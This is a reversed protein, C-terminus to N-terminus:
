KKDLNAIYETPSVGYYSKFMTSFHTQTTFGVAYAIQTVNMRKEELLKVAQQMRINMVFKGASLGTLEKLKRHLHTRSIGLTETLDEISFDSNSINANVAEMVRAMLQEDSSQFQIDEVRGKQEQEGSFKGKVILRNSILNAIMSRLERVYFPKSLYADAGTDLGATRDQLKNRASLLIVPIHSINANTKLAKVFAIGDMEPMVVDSVIVAPMQSIAMRLGEKGNRCTIVRYQPTLSQRIFDLMAEDDDIVLVKSSHSQSAVPEVPAVLQYPADAKQEALEDASMLDDESLHSNGLPLRFAFRSGRADTRNEAKISGKHLEVLIRSYNLGIGMGLTVSTLNNQVRYFREFVKNVDDVDLGIGTDTVSVELYHHLPGSQLDDTGSTLHVTIEGGDPTYKFANSLLNDMVKEISDRDIWALIEDSGHEYSYSISRQQASYMFTEFIGQMFSVIDTERCKLRMQGEDYKRIDLLQNVLGLIKNSSRYMQGLSKRTDADIDDKSLMEELPSIVMTMPSCIEHAVNIFSQLKADALEQQRRRRGLLVYVFTLLLAVILYVGLAWGSAYWPAAVRIIFTSVPSYSNNLRARVSLTHRGGNLRTFSIRNVGAPASTWDQQGFRYEYRIGDVNSFDFTSFELTFSNDSNALHFEKAVSVPEKVIHRSGSMTNIGIANDNLYFATMYVAGIRNSITIADPEFSTIGHASGFYIKGTQPNVAFANAYYDRDTLGGGSFFNEITGDNADIRNLGGRTSCWINGEADQVIAMVATNSLGSETDLVTCKKSSDYKYLGSTTGVWLNGARDLLIANCSKDAAIQMPEPLEVYKNARIDYCKLGNHQGIWLLSDAEAVLARVVGGSQSVGEPNHIQSYEGTKPNFTMVGNSRTGCYMIGNKDQTISSLLYSQGELFRQTVHGDAPDIISLGGAYLGAYLTGDQAQFLCNAYIEDTNPGIRMSGSKDFCAIGNNNFGIWLNGDRDSLLSTVSGSQLERYNSFNLFQFQEEANPVMLLGNLFCGLWRNNKSDIYYASIDQRNVNIESGRIELRAMTERQEDYYRLGEGRVSICFKGDRNLFTHTIGHTVRGLPVSQIEGSNQLDRPLNRPLRFVSNSTAIYINGEADEEIGIVDNDILEAAVKDTVSSEPSYIYVGNATGLWIKGSNDLLMSRVESGGLAKTVREILEAKYNNDTVGAQIRYLGGGSTSFWVIGNDLHLIDVIFYHAPEPMEVTHFEGREPNLIQVGIGTGVVITGDQSPEMCYVYDGSLSLPDSDSHFYHTFQYGDFKNVGYETGVWLFGQSDECISHIMNNTLQDGSYWFSRQANATSTVATVATAALFLLIHLHKM